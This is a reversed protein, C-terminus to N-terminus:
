TPEIEQNSALFLKYRIRTKNTELTCFLDVMSVYLRKLDTLSSMRVTSPSLHVIIIKIFGIYLEIRYM